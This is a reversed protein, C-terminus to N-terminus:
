LLKQIHEIHDREHYAARRLFKRPSWFEGDKGVVQKSDVLGPLQQILHARVKELREFPESPVEQRPFALGLRDMYWWDAGGIHGLIGLINWREGSVHRELVEQSVGQLIELLDVRNWALILLGRAVDEATLPKWDDRFWANVEYGDATLEFNEDVSFCEFIEDVQISPDEVPMWSHQTHAAIWHTYSQIAEPVVALTENANQGISFCGPHGLVWAMSRGEFNNELGIHFQM